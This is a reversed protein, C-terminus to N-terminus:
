TFLGTPQGSALRGTSIQDANLNEDADKDKDLREVFVPVCSNVFRVTSVNTSECDFLVGNDVERTLSGSPQESKDLRETRVVTNHTKPQTQQSDESGGSIDSGM